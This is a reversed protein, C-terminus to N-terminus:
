DARPLIAVRIKKIPLVRRYRALQWSVTEAVAMRVVRGGIRRGISNQRM